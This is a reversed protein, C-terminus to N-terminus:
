ECKTHGNQELTNHKTTHQKPLTYSKYYFNLFLCLITFTYIFVAYVFVKPFPCDYVSNLIGQTLFVVFQSIQMLTLYKKWWLYPRMKPGFAALGYYTYMVAHIFSNLFPYIINTGGPLFKVGLWTFVTMMSHHYVHLFTIQSNKKRLIFFITDLFEVIKSMFFVWGITVYYYEVEQDSTYQYKELSDCYISYGVRFMGNLSALSILTSLIVMAFNYVIIANRLQFPKFTSMWKPGQIVVFLYVGIAYLMKDPSGLFPYVEARPDAQAMTQNYVDKIYEITLQSM